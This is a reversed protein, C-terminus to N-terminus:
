KDHKIIIKGTALNEIQYSADNIDNVYTNVTQYMQDFKLILAEQVSPLPWTKQQWTWQNNQNDPHVIWDPPFGFVFNPNISGDIGKSNGTWYNDGALFAQTTLGM